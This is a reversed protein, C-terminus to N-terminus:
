SARAVRDWLLTLSLATENRGFNFADSEALHLRAGFAKSTATMKKVRTLYEDVIHQSEFVDSSVVDRPTKVVSPGQLAKHLFPFTMDGRVAPCNTRDFSTQTKKNYILLEAHRRWRPTLFWVDIDDVVDLM